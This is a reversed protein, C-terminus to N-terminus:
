WRTSASGSWSCPSTSRRRSTSASCPSARARVARGAGPGVDRAQAARPRRLDRHRRKSLLAQLLIGPSLHLILGIYFPFYGRGPRRQDLRRRAPASRHDVVVGLYDAHPSWQMSPRMPAVRRADPRRPTRQCPDSWHSQSQRRACPPGRRGRGPRGPTRRMVQALFGAEKM